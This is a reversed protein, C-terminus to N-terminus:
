QLEGAISRGRAAQLMLRWLEPRTAVDLNYDMALWQVGLHKAPLVAYDVVGQPTRMTAPYWPEWGGPWRATDYRATRVQVVIPKDGSFRRARVVQSTLCGLCDPEAQCVAGNILYADAMAAAEDFYQTDVLRHDINLWLLRDWWHVTDAMDAISEAPNVDDGDSNEWQELDYMIWRVEDPVKRAWESHKALSSVNWAVSAGPPAANAIDRMWQQKTANTPNFHILYFAPGASRMMDLKVQSPMEDAQFWCGAEFSRLGGEIRKQANAIRPSLMM